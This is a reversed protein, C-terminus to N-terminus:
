RYEDLRRKRENTYQQYDMETKAGRDGPALEKRNEIRAGEYMGQCIGERIDKGACGILLIFCGSIVMARILQM